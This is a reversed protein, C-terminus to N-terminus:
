RRSVASFRASRAPAARRQVRHGVRLAEVRGVEHAQGLGPSPDHGGGVVLREIVLSPAIARGLFGPGRAEEARVDRRYRSGRPARRCGGRPTARCPRGSSSGRGSYRSRPPVRLAHEVMRASWAWPKQSSITVRTIGPKLSESSSSRAASEDGGHGGVDGPVDGGEMRHCSSSGGRVVAWGQHAGGVDAFLAQAEDVGPVQGPMHPVPSFVYHGAQRAGSTSRTPKWTSCFRSSGQLDSGPTRELGDRPDPRRIARRSGGGVRLAPPDAAREM